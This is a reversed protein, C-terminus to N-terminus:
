HYVDALTLKWKLMDDAFGVQIQDKLKVLQGDISVSLLKEPNIPVGGNIWESRSSVDSTEKKAVPAQQKEKLERKGPSKKTDSKKKKLAEERLM